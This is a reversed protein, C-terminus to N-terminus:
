IQITILTPIKVIYDAVQIYYAVRICLKNVHKSYQYESTNTAYFCNISVRCLILVGLM